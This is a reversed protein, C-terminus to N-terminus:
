AVRMGKKRAVFVVYGPAPTFDTPRTPEGPANLKFKIAGEEIQVVGFQAKHADTGEAIFLDMVMPKRSPDLRIAGREVVTGDTTQSYKDGDISLTVEPSGAPVKVGDVSTIVWTGQLSTLEKSLGSQAFPRSTAVLGLVAIALARPVLM